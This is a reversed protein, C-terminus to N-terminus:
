DDAPTQLFIRVAFAVAWCAVAGILGYQWSYADTFLGIVLVLIGLGVLLAWYTRLLRRM